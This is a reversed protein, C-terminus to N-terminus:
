PEERERLGRFFAQLMAEIEEALIGSTVQVRHNLRESRVLDFVSGAAGAKPEEVGYVLATARAQVLAGACM